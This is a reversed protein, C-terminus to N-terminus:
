FGGKPRNRSTEKLSRGLLREALAYDRDAVANRIRSSSVPGGDIQISKVIDVIVGYIKGAEELMSDDGRRDKGFRFSEGVVLVRCKLGMFILKIFAEPSIGAFATDFPYNILIDIGMESLIEIKECECILPEFSKGSLVSVPNPYFTFALSPIGLHKAYEVTKKILAMHGAHMGDFKGITIAHPQKLNLEKDTVIKM